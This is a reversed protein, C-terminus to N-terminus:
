ASVTQATSSENPSARRARFFYARMYFMAAIGGVILLSGTYKLGRGPDYNVTLWSLFLEDRDSSGGVLEDFEPDGPKMPGRFAEQYVRYSRGTAPDSFSVPQNLTILIKGDGPTGQARAGRKGDRGLLEVLSSYHSAQSSGPDLKRQFKHLHLQFGVDIQDWPLTVAVRRGKGEVVRIQDAQPLRGLPDTPLGALWFEDRRGDVTLRVRVRRSKMASGRTSTYPLPQVKLGPADNPTYQEVYFTVPHASKEFAVVRRDGLPLPAIAGFQPSTWTRYYLKRDVGQLIDLRPREPHHISDPDAKKADDNVAQKGADIWYEGYVGHQDDQRNYEPFDALLVMQQSPTGPQHVTVVAGLFQPDLRALEVEMGTDGLPQRTQQQFKNLSIPFKRGSAHFVLQGLQGLAGVPGSHLFADTEAQNRAVWYVIRPGSALQRRSGLGMRGHPSGPDDATQIDLSVSTWSENGAKRRNEGTEAEDGKVRLRLPPAPVLQSDGCYDLVELQIGQQDYLVGWDRHALRWPFWFLTSYERFPSRILDASYDQWNFPGAAFPIQILSAQNARGEPQIKLEFHQTDEFALHGAHDEFIPMQADIGGLRSLACGVLLVVIGAHTIVFGTQHRKWPLRVLAAALVNMGLLGLLAAFWWTGYVGFHVVQTGFRGDVQRAFQSEVFTAWGLVIALAFIVLVALRLSALL